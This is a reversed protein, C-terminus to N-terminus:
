NISRPKWPREEIDAVTHIPADWTLREWHEELIPRTEDTVDADEIWADPFAELVMRYLEPDTVVDVPTGRYYGKLDLTDVQGTAALEDM